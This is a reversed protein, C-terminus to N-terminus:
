KSVTKNIAITLASILSIIEFMPRVSFRLAIIDESNIKNSVNAVLISKESMIKVIQDLQEKNVRSSDFEIMVFNAGSNPIATFICDLSKSLKELERYLDKRREHMLKLSAAYEKRYKPFLTMFQEAVSNINWIPTSSNFHELKTENATAVVGLRLGGIGYSKSISKIVILNKFKQLFYDDLVTCDKKNPCFDMFSEDIIFSVRPFYMVIELIEVASYTAGTPNNPNILIFHKIENEEIFKCIDDVHVKYNTEKTSKLFVIREKPVRNIYEDFSPTIIGIKSTTDTKDFMYPMVESAGNSVLLYDPNIHLMNGALVRQHAQGSPYSQIVEILSRKLDRMFQANPYYPNVLYCFDYVTPYVWYGGYQKNLKTKDFMKQAISLDKDDDIEIMEYSKSLWHVRMNLNPIINFCEEYYVSDGMLHIGCELAKLLDDKLFLGSFAYVNATKYLKSQDKIAEIQSKKIFREIIDHSMYTNNPKISVMGGDHFANYDLHVFALKLSEGKCEVNSNKIIQVITEDSFVLDSEFLIYNENPEINSFSITHRLTEINNTTEWRICDVFNISLNSPAVESVHQKLLDRMYGCAIIVEDIANSNSLQHLLREIISRNNIKTMCKPKDETQSRLRSGRGAALIIAKM